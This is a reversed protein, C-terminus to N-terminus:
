RSSSAGGGGASQPAEDQAELSELARQRQEIQQSLTQKPKKKKPKKAKKCEAVFKDLRRLTPAKLQQFDIELEGDDNKQLAEHDMESIISVVQEVQYDQLTNITESLTKKQEYTMHGEDHDSSDYEDSDDSAEAKRKQAATVSGVKKAASPKRKTAPKRAAPKRAGAAKKSPKKEKKTKKTKKKKKKKKKKKGKAKKKQIKTIDSQIRQLQFLLDQTETDDDSSGSDSSSSSSSSSGGGGGAVSGYAGVNGGTPEPILPMAGSGYGGGMTAAHALAATAAAANAAANAANKADKRSIEPIIPEPVPEPEDPMKTLAFEFAEALQKAMVVFENDKGNYKYCNTFISRIDSVFEDANAYKFQELKKKATGLDMPRTVVNPYDNLGLAEWNVPEYFPWAYKDHKKSMLERMLVGCYKMRAGQKPKKKKPGTSVSGSLSLGEGPLEKMAPRISRMSPRRGSAGLGGNPLANSGIVGAFSRSTASAKSRSRQGVTVSIEPKPLHLLQTLMYDHFSRAMVYIDDKERNFSYCNEFMLTLHKIAEEAKAYKPPKAKLGAEVVDISMPTKIVDFYNPIRLAVPDVPKKFPWAHKHKKLNKILTNKIYQLQNTTTNQGFAPTVMGPTVGLGPAPAPAPTTAGATPSAAATAAAPVAAGAASAPTTADAPAGATVNGSVDAAGETRARKGNDPGPQADGAAAAPTTANAASDAATSPAAALTAAASTAIAAAAAPDAAAAPTAPTADMAAAPTPALTPTTDAEGAQTAPVESPAPASDTSAAAAAAALPAAAAAPPAAAAPESTSPTTATTTSVTPAATAAPAATAPTSTAAVTDSCQILFTPLPLSPFSFPFSLSHIKLFPRSLYHTVSDVNEDHTSM